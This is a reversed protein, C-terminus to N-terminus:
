HRVTAPVSRIRGEWYPSATAFVNYGIARNTKIRDLVALETLPEYRSSAPDLVFLRCSTASLLYSSVAHTRDAGHEEVILIADGELLHRGGKIADIEMGEVDLKVILRQGRVLLGLDALSDLAIMEVSEGAGDGDVIRLAEHKHGSLRVQGGTAAGIARHLIAFRGRNLEANHSLRKANAASAEIAIVPRSGYPRSSVLVSWYGFNAGGDVFTYDADAIARLFRDIEPEYVFSQDLLRSWYGDGLPFSFRANANLALVIDRQEIMSSVLRSGISFGRHGLPASAAAGAQLLFVACRELATAGELRGAMRDFTIPQRANV